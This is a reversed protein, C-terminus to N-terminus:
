MTYNKEYNEIKHKLKEIKKESLNPNTKWKALLENM